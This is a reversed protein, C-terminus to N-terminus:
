GVCYGKIADLIIKGYQECKADGVGKVELFDELTTPKRRAMDRLAVDGFVVYAPIGKQGAIQSRLARM